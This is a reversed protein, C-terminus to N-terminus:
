WNRRTTFRGYGPQRLNYYLQQPKIIESKYMARYRNLTTAYFNQFYPGDFKTSDYGQQQQAALYAIQYLLLNYSETDLNIINSDDTITEQWAGTSADRFMYKSYYVIELITGLRCIINDLRMGTQASTAVWTVRLYTIDTPDPSGVVTANLWPLSILNWGDQFATNEQTVIATQEYYNSSDTGWRLSVSTIGTATQLYTYLFQNAQNLWSNLDLSNITSNELWGTGSALDFKLSSSGSVYNVNDIALNSATGGASWGTTSDVSDLVVGSILSEDAIRITKLGTDFNINFQQTLSDKTLDFPKGYAQSFSDSTYRSVQPRIDIVKNGKLDVPLPYDYVKSYISSALPLIRKTEQPDVDLLVQRAARYILGDINTIQNLSTGHLIGSLDAKCNTVSYM